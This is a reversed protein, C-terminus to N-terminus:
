VGPSEFDDPRDPFPLPTPIPSQPWWPCGTPGRRPLVLHNLPPATPYCRDPLPRPISEYEVDIIPRSASAQGAGAALALAAIAFAVFSPRTPKV